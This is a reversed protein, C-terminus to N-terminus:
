GHVCKWDPVPEARAAVSKAWDFVRLLDHTVPTLDDQALLATITHGLPM